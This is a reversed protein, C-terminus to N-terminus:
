GHGLRAAVPVAASAAPVLRDRVARSGSRNWRRSAISGNPSRPGGPTPSRTRSATGRVPHVLGATAMAALERYVQSRTLTWFNGIRQEPVTVLDWGTMPREHLLGLLSAATPNLPRAAM